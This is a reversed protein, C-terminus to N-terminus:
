YLKRRRGGAHGIARVSRWELYAWGLCILTAWGTVPSHSGFIFWVIFLALGPLFLIRLALGLLAFPLTILARITNM